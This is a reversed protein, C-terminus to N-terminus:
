KVTYKEIAAKMAAVDARNDARYKADGLRTRFNELTFANSNRTISRLVRGNEADLVVGCISTTGLDLALALSPSTSKM